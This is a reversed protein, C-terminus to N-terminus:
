MGIKSSKSGNPIPAFTVVVGTFKSLKRWSNIPATIMDIRIIM